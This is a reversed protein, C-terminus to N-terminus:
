TVLPGQQSRESCLSDAAREKMRSEAFCVPDLDLAPGVKAPGAQYRTLHAVDEEVVRGEARRRLFMTLCLLAVGGLVLGVLATPSPNLNQLDM